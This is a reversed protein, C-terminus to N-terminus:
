VESLEILYNNSSLFSLFFEEHLPSQVKGYLFNEEVLSLILKKHQKCYMQKNEKLIIKVISNLYKIYM